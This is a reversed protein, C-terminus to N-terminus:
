QRPPEGERGPGDGAAVVSGPNEGPGTGPVWAGGTGSDGYVVTFPDFRFTTLTDNGAGVTFVHRGDPSVAADNAIALGAVGAPDGDFVAQGFSLAGTAPNRDFRIFAGPVAGTVLVQLGDPTINVSLPVRMGVVGDEGNVNLGVPVLSGSGADRAFAILSDFARDTAYVHKGDPSVVVDSPRVPAGARVTELYYLVQSEADREFIALAHDNTGAVYVHKGDPSVAVASAGAIGDLGGVDDVFVGVFTLDDVSADRAFVALTGYERGTALVSRGDPTVTVNSAQGLGFVGGMGNEEIAAFSLDDQSADRAFVVLSDDRLSTAYAHRGDPSVAVASAGDLGFVGDVEDMEAEVFALSETSADRRFLVVASDTRSAVLVHLGDPTVAVGNPGKMGMVGRLGDAQLEVFTLIGGFIPLSFFAALLVFWWARARRSTRPEPERGEAGDDQLFDFMM